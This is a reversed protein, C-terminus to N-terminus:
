LVLDILQIWEVSQSIISEVRSSEVRSRSRSRLLRTEVRGIPFNHSTVDKEKRKTKKPSTRKQNISGLSPFIHREKKKPFWEVPFTLVVFSDFSRHCDAVTEIAM